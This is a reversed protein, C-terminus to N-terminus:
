EPQVVGVSGTIHNGLENHAETNLYQVYEEPSNGTFIPVGKWLREYQPLRRVWIPGDKGYYALAWDPSQVLYMYLRPIDPETDLHGRGLVCNIGLQDLLPLGTMTADLMGRYEVFVQDPYANTGDIFLDPNDAFRWELYSGNNYDNFIPGPIANQRVFDTMNSAIDPALAPTPGPFVRDFAYVLVVIYLAVAAVSPLMGVQLTPAPASTTREQRKRGRKLDPKTTKVPDLGAAWSRFYPAAVALSVLVFAGLNRRAKLTLACFVILWALHTWRRSEAPQKIWMALSAILLLLLSVIASPPMYPPAYAPRWEAIDAFTTTMVASYIKYYGIGYPNALTALTAIVATVLLIRSRRDARDQMLDCITAIWLAILGSLMGGHLNTWLAFIVALLAITTWARRNDAPEANRPDSSAGSRNVLVSLVLAFLAFSVIEPRPQYRNEAACVAISFLGLAPYFTRDSVRCLRWLTAYALFALLGAAILAGAAADSESVHRILLYILLETLWSHAIYPGHYTWLFLAHAPAHGHQAIWRGVAAHGWFDSYNEITVWAYLLCPPLLLFVGYRGKMSKM